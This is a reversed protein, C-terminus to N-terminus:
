AHAVILVHTCGMFLNPTTAPRTPWLYIHPFKDRIIDLVELASFSYFIGDGESYQYGRGGTRVYNMLSWTRTLRLVQKTLRLALTGQGYKNSDSILIGKSAVRCMERVAQRSDKIHHLVGFATCFDFSDDSYAIATADGSIHEGKPVGNEYAVNRLAASPEIGMVKFSFRPADDRLYRYFRGTGAGVDLIKSNPYRPRLFATILQCALTHEVDESGEMHSTDYKAKTREYYERQLDIEKM